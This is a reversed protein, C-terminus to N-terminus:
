LKEREIAAFDEWVRHACEIYKAAREHQNFVNIEVVCQHKYKDEEKDFGKISVRLEDSDPHFFMASSTHNRMFKSASDSDVPELNAIDEETLILPRVRTKQMSTPSILGEVGSRAVKQPQAVVPTKKAKPEVFVPQTEPKEDEFRDSDSDFDASAAFDREADRAAQDALRLSAM